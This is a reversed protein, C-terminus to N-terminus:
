LKQCLLLPKSLSPDHKETTKTFNAELLARIKKTDCRSPHLEIILNKVNSLDVDNDCLFAEEAGEIDIKM